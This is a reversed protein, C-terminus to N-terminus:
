DNLETESRRTEVDGRCQYDSFFWSVHHTWVAEYKQTQRKLEFQSMAAAKWWHGKKKHHLPNDETDIRLEQTKDSIKKELTTSGGEEKDAKNTQHKALIVWHHSVFCWVDDANGTVAHSRHQRIDLDHKVLIVHWVGSIGGFLEAAAQCICWAVVVAVLSTEIRPVLGEGKIVVSEHIVKIVLWQQIIVHHHLQFLHSERELRRTLQISLKNITLSNGINQKKPNPTKYLNGEVHLYNNVHNNVHKSDKKGFFFIEETIQLHITYM